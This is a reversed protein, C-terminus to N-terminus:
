IHTAQQGLDNQATLKAPWYGFSHSSISYEESWIGEEPKPIDRFYLPGEVSNSAVKLSVRQLNWTQRLDPGM